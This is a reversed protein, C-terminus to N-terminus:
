PTLIATERASTIAGANVLGDMWAKLVPSTLGITGAALGTTLGVGITTPAAAAAAQVAAQEASTFRDLFAISTIITPNPAAPPVYWAPQMSNIVDMARVPSVGSVTFHTGDKQDTVSYVGGSQVVMRGFNDTTTQAFALSVFVLMTLLLMIRCM